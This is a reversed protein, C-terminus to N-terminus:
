KLAQGLTNSNLLAHCMLKFSGRRMPHSDIGFFEDDLLDASEVWLLAFSSASVRARPADLLQLDIDANELALAV